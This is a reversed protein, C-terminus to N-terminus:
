TTLVNGANQPVGLNMVANTLFGGGTRIRLWILGTYATYRGDIGLDELHSKGEPEGVLVRYAIWWEDGGYTSCAEGDWEEKNLLGFLMRHTACFMFDGEHLRRWEGTVEDREVRFIKRLLRNGFVRLRYEERLGSQQM